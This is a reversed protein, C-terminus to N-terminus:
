YMDGQNEGPFSSPPGGGTGSISTDVSQARSQIKSVSNATKNILPPKKTKVVNPTM